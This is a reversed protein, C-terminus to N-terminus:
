TLAGRLEVIKQNYAEVAFLIQQRWYLSTSYSNFYLPKSIRKIEGKDSPLYVSLIRSDANYMLEMPNDSAIMCMDHRFSIDSICFNEGFLEQHVIEFWLGKNNSHIKLELYKKM